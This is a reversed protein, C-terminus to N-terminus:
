HDQGESATASPTETEEDLNPPELGVAKSPANPAGHPPDWRLEIEGISPRPQELRRGVTSILKQDIKQLLVCIRQTVMGKSPVGGFLADM